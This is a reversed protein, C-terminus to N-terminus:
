WAALLYIMVSESPYSLGSCVSEPVGESLVKVAVVTGRWNAKFVAGFGGSGLKKDGIIVELSTIAIHDLESRIPGSRRQMANM